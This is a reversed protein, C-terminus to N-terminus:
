TNNLNSFALKNVEESTSTNADPALQSTNGFFAGGSSLCSKRKVEVKAFKGIMLDALDAKGLARAFEIVTKDQSNKSGKHAGAKILVQIADKNDFDKDVAIAEHLPTSGDVSINVSEGHNLLMRLLELRKTKDISKPLTVAAIILNTNSSQFSPAQSSTYSQLQKELEDQNCTKICHLVEFHKILGEIKSRNQGMTISAATREFQDLLETKAGAELLFEVVAEYSLYSAKHLATEKSNDEQANIDAHYDLLASKVEQVNNQKVAIILMHHALLQRVHAHEESDIDQIKYYAKKLFGIGDTKSHRRILWNLGFNNAMLAMTEILTNNKADVGHLDAGKDALYDSISSFQSLLSVLLPTQGEDNRANISAGLEILSKVQNFQGAKVAEFLAVGFPNQKLLALDQTLKYIDQQAKKLLFVVDNPGPTKLFLEISNIVVKNVVKSSLVEFHIEVDGQHEEPIALLISNKKQTTTNYSIKQQEIGQGSVILTLQLNRLGSAQTEICLQSIRQNDHYLPMKLLGKDISLTTYFSKDQSFGSLALPFSQKMQAMTFSVKQEKELRDQM